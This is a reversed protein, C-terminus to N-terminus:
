EKKKKKKEKLLFFVILAKCGKAMPSGVSTCQGWTHTHTHSHTHTHTLFFHTLTVTSNTNIQIPSQVYLYIDQNRRYCYDTPNFEAKAAQTNKHMPTCTHTYTFKHAPHKHTHYLAESVVCHSFILTKRDIFLRGYSLLKYVTFKRSLEERFGKNTFRWKQPFHTLEM